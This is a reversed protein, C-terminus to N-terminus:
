AAVLVLVVWIGVAGGIPITLNDDVVFGFVSPKVGDAITALIAGAFAAAVGAVFSDVATLTFPLAVALSVLFMAFLSVTGKVARLEGSGLYGSVPDGLMLMLMAPIAILPAFVFAVATISFLYLAYGAVTKVEYDRTLRDYIWWEQLGYRLRLVELVIAITCALLLLYQVQSWDALGILYMGPFAIGSAHVLRRGIEGM